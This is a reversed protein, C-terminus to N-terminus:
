KLEVLILELPSDSVNKPLHQGAPTFLSDGAGAKAESTAGDPTTMQILHETLFVAVNDPHYHMTSEEGSGYNIRVIRVQNNEFEATYHDPDVTTSDLAVPIAPGTAGSKLEILVLELPQEGVNKPLHQGASYFQHLGTASQAALTEGDPLRMEVNAETLYVGVAEPHYHMVSEEGPEYTIRVIRVRDNEFETRYHDGDVVTPDPGTEVAAVDAAPALDDSGTETGPQGCSLFLVTVVFLLWLTHKSPM